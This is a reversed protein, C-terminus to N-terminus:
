ILAMSVCIYISLCIYSITDLFVQPVPLTAMLDLWFEGRLYNQSISSSDLILEGRGLLRSSPAVYATRFRIYIKIAYFIDVISRIITLSIKLTIDEDLCMGDKIIPLYFFLPDVALSVLAAILFVQNWQNLTTGRPDLITNKTKAYDESFVRSLKKTIKPDDKKLPQPTNPEPTEM